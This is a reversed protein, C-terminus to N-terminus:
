REDDPVILLRLGRTLWPNRQRHRTQTDARVGQSSQRFRSYWDAFHEPTGGHERTFETSSLATMDFEPNITAKGKTCSVTLTKAKGFLAATNLGRIDLLWADDALNPVEAQVKTPTVFFPFVYYVCRPMTRALDHLASHQYKALTYRYPATEVRGKPAKFQFAFLRTSADLQAIFDAGEAKEERQTLGRLYAKSLGPQSRIVGLIEAGINLELTKESVKIM